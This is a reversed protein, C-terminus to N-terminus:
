HHNKALVPARKRRQHFGVGNVHGGLLRLEPADDVEVFDDEGDFELAQGFKGGVWKAGGVKGDFGNESLDRAVKGQGDDFSLALVPKVDQGYGILPGILFMLTLLSMRTIRM